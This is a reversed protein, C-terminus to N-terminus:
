AFHGIDLASGIEITLTQNKKLWESLAPNVQKLTRLNKKLTAKSM